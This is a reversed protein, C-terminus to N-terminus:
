QDGIQAERSGHAVSFSSMGRTEGPGCRGAAFLREKESGIVTRPLIRVRAAIRL